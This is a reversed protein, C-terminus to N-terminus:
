GQRIKRFLEIAKRMFDDRSTPGLQKFNMHVGKTDVGCLISSEMSSKETRVIFVPRSQEYIVAVQPYEFIPEIGAEVSGITRPNEYYHVVVSEDSEMKGSFTNVDHHPMEGMFLISVEGM